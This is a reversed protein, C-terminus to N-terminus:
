SVLSEHVVHQDSMVGDGLLVSYMPLQMNLCYVHKTYIFTSTLYKTFVRYKYFYYFEHITM